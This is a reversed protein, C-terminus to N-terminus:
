IAYFKEFPNTDKVKSQMPHFQTYNLENHEMGILRDTCFIEMQSKYLEFQMSSRLHIQINSKSETKTTFKNNM